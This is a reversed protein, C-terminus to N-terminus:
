LSLHSMRIKLDEYEKKPGDPGGTEGAVQNPKVAESRDAQMPQNSSASQEALQHAFDLNGPTVESGLHFHLIRSISERKHEVQQAQQDSAAQIDDMMTDARDDITTDFM